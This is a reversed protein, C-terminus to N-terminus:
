QLQIMKRLPEHHGCDWCKVTEPLQAYRTGSIGYSGDVRFGGCAQCPTANFSASCRFCHGQVFEKQLVPIRTNHSGCRACHVQKTQM